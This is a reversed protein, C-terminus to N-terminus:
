DTMRGFRLLRDTVDSDCFAEQHYLCPRIAVEIGHEHLLLNATTFYFRNKKDSVLIENRRSIYRAYTPNNELLWIYAVKSRITPLNPEIVAKKWEARSLSTKKHKPIAKGKKEERHDCQLNVIALVYAEDRPLDVLSVMSADGFVTFVHNFRHVRM